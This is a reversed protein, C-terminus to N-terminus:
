HQRPRGQGTELGWPLLTLLLDKEELSGVGDTVVM